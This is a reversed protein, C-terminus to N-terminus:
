RSRYLVLKAEEGFGKYTCILIFSGDSIVGCSLDGRRIQSGLYINRDDLFRTKEGNPLVYELNVFRGNLEFLTDTQPYNLSRLLGNIEDKIEEKFRRYAELGNERIFGSAVCTGGFPSGCTSICGKCQDKSPCDSCDAGCYTKM